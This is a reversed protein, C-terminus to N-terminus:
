VTQKSINTLIGVAILSIVMASGGYSILPLPVGTLPILGSLALINIFAQFCLWSTIGGALLRGFSDPSARAIKFGQYALFSFLFVLFSVRLFGLEECIVAFISDGVVEPLYSYKQRSQGFGLGWLGGSGEAILAQNLHYGIGQPDTEPNRFVAFRDMRYPAIVILLWFTLVLIGGIMALHHFRAGALYFVIVSSLLIISLTGIDPQLVILFSVVGLITLFSLFGYQFHSVQERKGSLWTALYIVFTLKLLETPQFSFPGAGIWRRAGKFGLGIGPIFVLVLLILSIILALFAWKQWRHYDIKAFILWAIFGLLAGLFFQHRLYYANNGFREYSLVSSASGIMVLGFIVLAFVTIILSYNPKHM